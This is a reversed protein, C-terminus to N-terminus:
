VAALFAGGLVDLRVQAVSAADEVPGGLEQVEALRDRDGHERDQLRDRGGVVRVRDHGRQQVRHRGAAVQSDRVWARVEEVLFRLLSDAVGPVAPDLLLEGEAAAVLYRLEEDARVQDVRAQHQYLFPAWLWAGDGYAVLRGHPAGDAAFSLPPAFCLACRPSGRRDTVAAKSQPM